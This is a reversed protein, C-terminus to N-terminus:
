KVIMKTNYTYADDVITLIYIGSKLYHNITIIDSPNQIKKTLIQQGSTNYVSISINTYLLSPNLKLRIQESVPNEMLIYTVLDFNITNLPEQRIEALAFNANQQTLATHDENESPVYTNVFPSDGITPIEYWNNENSIALSSMTPIFSYNEQELAEIFADILPDNIDALGSAIDGKGGPSSDLGDTFAFSEDFADFFAVPIGIFYATFDTVNITEGAAPAFHLSIDATLNNGLDLSTDIMSMGPTGITTGNGSGNIMAVNRVNQPFGLNDLETQFADRFNPAGVPLLLNPDQEFDSGTILHASYHDILMEKAAPSNLVNDVVAQAQANDQGKAFYNILYQFSVPINAGLHPSDFSIYLRTEHNMSNQEMFSLGYRAILGGMSPGIIVLEESGVKENNIFDILEVLVMANRQIYDAGGDIDKGDTNYLPANLAIFDYGENRLIDALNEGNFDLAAYLMAIDRGDGPDFGDIMIIPKDLVGDITDLFLEYEGEGFYAQSEDYGQYAITSTVTQTQSSVQISIFAILTFLVNKM